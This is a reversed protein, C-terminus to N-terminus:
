CVGNMSPYVVALLLVWCLRATKGSAGITPQQCCCFAPLEQIINPSLQPERVDSYSGCEPRIRDQHAPLRCNM